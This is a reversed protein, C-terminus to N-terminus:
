IEVDWLFHDDAFLIWTRSLGWASRHHHKAACPEASPTDPQPFDDAPRSLPHPYRPAQGARVSGM